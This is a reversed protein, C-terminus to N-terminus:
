GTARRSRFDYVGGTGAAPTGALTATGDGNDTFTVGSPLDGGNESLSAAPNGVTTVTYSGAAGVTFTTDAGSTITPAQPANSVTLTFSQNADSGVGNTATITIPYDQPSGGPDGSLTATGNGNDTFTVGDPLDGTESLAPAPYGSATVTFSNSEGIDFTVNDISTIAPAQDM